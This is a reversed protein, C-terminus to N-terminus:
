DEGVDRMRNVEDSIKGGRVLRWFITVFIVGAIGIAFFNEPETVTFESFLTAYPRLASLVFIYAVGSIVAAVAAHIVVSIMSFKSGM